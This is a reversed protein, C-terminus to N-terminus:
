TRAWSAIEKEVLGRRPGQCWSLGSLEVFLTDEEMEVVVVVDPMEQRCDAEEQSEHGVKSPVLVEPFGSPVLYRDELRAPGDPSLQIM